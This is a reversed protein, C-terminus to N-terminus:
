SVVETKLDSTLINTSMSKNKKRNETVQGTKGCTVHTWTDRGDDATQKCVDISEKRV